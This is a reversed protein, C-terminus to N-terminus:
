TGSSLVKQQAQDSVVQTTGIDLFKTLMVRDADLILAHANERIPLGLEKGKLVMNAPLVSSILVMNEVTEDCGPPAQDPFVLQDGDVACTLHINLLLVNGDDCTISTVASAADRVVDWDPSYNDVDYIPVGTDTPLGDTINIVIPPYSDPHHQIHSQVVESAKRLAACMPTSGDSVPEVWFPVEKSIIRGADESVPVDVKRGFGTVWDEAAAWGKGESLSDIAWEVRGDGYGYVGIHVRDKIGDQTVCGNLAMDYIVENIAVAAGESLSESFTSSGWDEYMSGSRDILFLILAPKNSDIRQRYM